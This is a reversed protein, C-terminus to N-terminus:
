WKVVKTSYRGVLLLYTGSPLRSINLQGDEFSSLQTVEQGISNFVRIDEDLRLDMEIQIVDTTPNPYIKLGQPAYVNISLSPSNSVFPSLDLQLSDFYALRAPITQTITNYTQVSISDQRYRVALWMLFSEAIDERTPNDRAYTSIFTTDLSQAALWDPHAAHDADLSTHSAEHVLTEELIGDNEYLTTQGTHILISRNGGGFPEVGQHIWIEDVDRRLAVPLQGILFGYKEAEVTAAALTGFEANVQAVSTLGDEWVVDFLYANVTVWDPIRRDYMTVMGQGTYTTSQIASPDSATIIDSDIFITGSYPPQASLIIATLMMFGFLFLQKM